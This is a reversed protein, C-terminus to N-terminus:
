GKKNSTISPFKSPLESHAVPQPTIFAEENLSQESEIKSNLGLVSNKIKANRGIYSGSWIVTDQILVGEEIICDDGIVVNGVIKANAKIVSNNGLVLNGEIFSGPDVKATDSQWSCFREDNIQKGALNATFKGNLIDFNSQRYQALTGVDSWYSEISLGLVRQKEKLLQPFLQKGFAYVGTKPIFDFIAPEFIYIGTSALNSRAEDPHPKEQFETIWGESDLVAVGFQSVDTVPKLAITALAKMKKHQEVLSGLKADTLLDGMIVVFTGDCLHEMCGRVGGADGSLTNEFLYNIKLGFASGDGFYNKISDPLHHLNVSVQTFGHQLLLNIIYEMVPKNAVPVLPKPIQTTLPDLRTGVGAALVM